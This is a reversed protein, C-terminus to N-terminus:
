LVEVSGVDEECGSSAFPNAEWEVSLFGSSGIESNEDSGEASCDALHPLWDYSALRGPSRRFFSYLPRANSISPSSPFISRRNTSPPIEAGTNHSPPLRYLLQNLTSNLRCGRVSQLELDTDFQSLFSHSRVINRALALDGATGLISRIVRSQHLDLDFPHLLRNVIRFHENWDSADCRTLMSGRCRPSCRVVILDREARLLDNLHKLAEGDFSLSHRQNKAMRRIRSRSLKVRYRGDERVVLDESLTKESVEVASFKESYAENTTGNVSRIPVSTVTRPSPRVTFTLQRVRAAFGTAPPPAVSGDKSSSLSKNQSEGTEMMKSSVSSHEQPIYALENMVMSEEEIDGDTSGVDDRPPDTRRDEGARTDFRSTARISKFNFNIQRRLIIVLGLSGLNVLSTLFPTVAFVSLLGYTYKIMIAWEDLLQQFHAQALWLQPSTDIDPGYLPAYDDLLACVVDFKRWFRVLGYIEIIDFAQSLVDTYRLYELHLSAYWCCRCDLDM